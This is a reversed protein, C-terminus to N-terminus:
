QSKLPEFQHVRIESHTKEGKSPLPAWSSSNNAKTM